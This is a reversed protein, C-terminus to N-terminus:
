QNQDPFPKITETSVGLGAQDQQLPEEKGRLRRNKKDEQKKKRAMEKRRKEGSFNKKM